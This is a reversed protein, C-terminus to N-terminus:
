LNQNQNNDLNNIDISHLVRAQPFVQGIEMNIKNDLFGKDLLFESMPCIELYVPNSGVPIYSHESGPLSQSAKRPQLSKLGFNM